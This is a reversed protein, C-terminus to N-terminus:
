SGAPDNRTNEGPEREHRRLRRGAVLGVGTVVAAVPVLAGGLLQKADIVDTCLASGAPPPTPLLEPLPQPPLTPLPTHTPLPTATATPGAPTATAAPTATVGATATAPSTATATSTATASPTPTPQGVIYIKLRGESQAKAVDMEGTGAAAALAIHALEKPQRGFYTVCGYADILVPDIGAVIENVRKVRQPDTLDTEFGGAQLRRGVPMRVRIAELIHLHAQIPSPSSLDAIGQELQVHLQGPLEMFGMMHKLCMTLKTVLHSKAVAMNIRVDAEAAAKIMGLKRFATVKANPLEVPTFLSRPSLYRDPFVKEVGLADVVAGIGSVRLCEATGPEISCHDMVIIRSAGAARVMLILARLLEPDTSSATGPPYDWTANPKIAVVQGPRVFRDIGGLGDLATQLIKEASDANTGRAVITTPASPAPEAFAVPLRGVLYHQLETGAALVATRRLFERRTIKHM